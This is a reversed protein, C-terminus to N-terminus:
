VKMGLSGSSSPSTLSAPRKDKNPSSAESKPSSSSSSKGFWGFIGKKPKQDGQRQDVDVADGGSLQSEIAVEVARVVESEAAVDVRPGYGNKDEEGHGNEDKELGPVERPTPDPFNKSYKYNRHLDDLRRVVEASSWYSEYGSAFGGKEEEREGLPIPSFGMNAYVTDVDEYDFRSRLVSVMQTKMFNHRFYSMQEAESIMHNALLSGGGTATSGEGFTSARSSRLSSPRYELVESQPHSKSGIGARSIVQEIKDIWTQRSKGDPTALKYTMTGEIQLEFVHGEPEIPSPSIATIKKLEIYLLPLEDAFEYLALNWQDMEIWCPLFQIMMKDKERLFQMCGCFTDGIEEFGMATLKTHEETRGMIHPRHLDIRRRYFARINCARSTMLALNMDTLCAQIRLYADQDCKDFVKEMLQLTCM